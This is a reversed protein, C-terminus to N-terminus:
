QAVTNRYPEVRSGTTASSQQALQSLFRALVEDGPLHRDTDLWGQQLAVQGLAKAKPRGILGARALAVLDFPEM